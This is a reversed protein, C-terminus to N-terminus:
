KEDGSGKRIIRIKMEDAPQFEEMNLRTFYGTGHGEPARAGASSPARERDSALQARRGKEGEGERTKKEVYVIRTVIREGAVPVEIIKPAQESSLSSAPAELSISPQRAVVLVAVILAFAIFALGAVPVPVPVSAHLLRKWLPARTQSQQRYAALLRAGFMPSADPAEWQHLAARLEADVEDAHREDPQPTRWSQPADQARFSLLRLYKRERM